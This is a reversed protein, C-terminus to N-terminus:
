LDLAKVARDNEDQTIGIYRLTVAPSSNNLMDQLLVIDTGAKYQHNRDFNM